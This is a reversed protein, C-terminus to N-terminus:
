RPYTSGFLKFVAYVEAHHPKSCPVADVATTVGSPVQEICDGAKLSNLSISGADDIQGSANRSASTIVGIRSV